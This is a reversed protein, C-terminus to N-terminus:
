LVLVLEDFHFISNDSEIVSQIADLENNDWTSTALPYNTIKNMILLTITHKKLVQSLLHRIHGAM